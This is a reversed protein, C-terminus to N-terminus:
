ALLGQIILEVAEDETLGRSQLTQLQTSDVSGIAAEHTVHASPNNVEVVPVAKASGHGQVIEKCDVHGRSYAGDARIMNYVEAKANDRLAIYSKLVARSYEGKLHGSERISIADDERGSIRAIMELVGRAECITEYDMEIKGVRGKVLEFETRFRGGEHVHVQAKPLVMVGGHPGHVHREFYSYNAGPGVNIVADMKHVVERANPFTCHALISASSNEEITVNLVINQVGMEPLLGFCIHVPKQLKVGECVRIQADIGDDLEQVDVELGPVLHSDVVKNAHVQLRATDDGLQHLSKVDISELLKQLLEGKSM